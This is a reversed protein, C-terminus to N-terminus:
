RRVVRVMLNFLITLVISLLISVLPQWAEPFHGVAWHKLTVFLQDLQDAM